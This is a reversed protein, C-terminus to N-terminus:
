KRILVRLPGMSVFGATLASSLSEGGEYGVILSGPFVLAAAARLDPWLGGHSGFVNSLGVAPLTENLICGAVIKGGKRAAMFAVGREDLLTSPFQIFDSAEGRWAEEWEILEAASAIRSWLLVPSAVSPAAWIWEADFMVEYGLTVFDLDAFSDKIVAPVGTFSLVKPVLTIAHPYFPPPSDLRRWLSESWETRCGHARCVADCWLANNLVALAAKEPTCDM